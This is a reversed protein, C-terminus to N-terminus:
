NRDGNNARKSFKNLTRLLEIEEQVETGLGRISLEEIRNVIETESWFDSNNSKDLSADMLKHIGRRVQSPQPSSLLVYTELTEREVREITNSPIGVYVALKELATRGLRKIARDLIFDLELAYRARNLDRMKHYEGSLNTGHKRYKVVPHEVRTFLGKGALYLWLDFDQLFKSSPNFGGADIFDVRRLCVSPACIFNGQLYLRGLPFDTISNEFFENAASDPLILDEADIVVPYSYSVVTEPYDSFSRLQQEM